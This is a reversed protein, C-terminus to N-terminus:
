LTLTICQVEYAIEQLGIWARLLCGRSRTQSFAQGRDRRWADCAMGPCRLLAVVHGIRGRRGPRWAWWGTDHRVGRHGCAAVCVASDASARNQRHSFTEQLVSPFRPGAILGDVIAAQFM